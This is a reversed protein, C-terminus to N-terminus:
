VVKHALFHSHSSPSAAWLVWAPGKPAAHPGPQWWVELLDWAPAALPDYSSPRAQTGWWNLEDSLALQPGSLHKQLRYGIRCLCSRPLKAFISVIFIKHYGFIDTSSALMRSLAAWSCIKEMPAGPLVVDGVWGEEGGWSRSAWSRAAFVPALSVWVSAVRLKVAGTQQM